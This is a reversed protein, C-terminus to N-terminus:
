FLSSQKAQSLRDNILSGLSSDNDEWNTENDYVKEKQGLTPISSLDFEKVEEEPKSIEDLVNLLDEINENILKLQQYVNYLSSKVYGVENM